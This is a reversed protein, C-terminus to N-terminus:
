GGLNIKAIIELIIRAAKNLLEFGAEYEGQSASLGADNVLAEATQIAENAEAPNETKPSENNVARILDTVVGSARNFGHMDKPMALAFKIEDMKVSIKEAFAPGSIGAAIALAAAAAYKVNRM